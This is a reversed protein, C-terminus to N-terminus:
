SSFDATALCVRAQGLFPGCIVSIGVRRFQATLIVRQHAPSSMWLDVLGTPTSFGGSGYALVEGVRGRKLYALRERFTQGLPDDHGFFGRRRMNKVHGRALSALVLDRRLAVYGLEVRRENLLKLIQGAAPAPPAASGGTLMRAGYGSAVAIAVVSLALAVDRRRLGLM